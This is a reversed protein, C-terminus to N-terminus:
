VKTSWFFSNIFQVTGGYRVQMCKGKGPTFPIRPAVQQKKNGSASTSASLVLLKFRGRDTFFDGGIVWYYTKIM